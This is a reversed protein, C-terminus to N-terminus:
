FSFGKVMSLFENKVTNQIQPSAQLSFDFVCENKRVVIMVVEVKVGDLSGSVYLQEADRDAIRLKKSELEKYNALPTLPNRVLQSLPATVYRDCLSSLSLVSGTSIHQYLRQAGESPPLLKWGKVPEPFTFSSASRDERLPGTVSCSIFLFFLILFRV